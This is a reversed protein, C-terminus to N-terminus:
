FPKFIQIYNILNETLQLLAVAYRFIQIEGVCGGRTAGVPGDGLQPLDIM